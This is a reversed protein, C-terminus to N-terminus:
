TTGHSSGHSSRRELADLDIIKPEKPEWTPNTIARTASAAEDPTFQLLMGIVPVLSFREPAHIPMTIFQLIVNKVYDMNVGERRSIRRLEKMEFEQNNLTTQLTALQLDKESLSQQLQQFAVERIDTQLTHTYERMAQKQAYEFIKRETPAGIRILLYLSFSNLTPCINTQTQKYRSVHNTKSVDDVTLLLHLTLPLATGDAAESPLSM